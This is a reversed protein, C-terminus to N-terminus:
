KYYWVKVTRSMTNNFWIRLYVFKKRSPEDALVRFFSNTNAVSFSIEIQGNPTIVGKDINLLLMVNKEVSFVINHQSNNKIKLQQNPQVENPLDVMIHDKKASVFPLGKVRIRLFDRTEPMMKGEKELPFREDILLPIKAWSQGFTQGDLFQELFTRWVFLMGQDSGNNAEGLNVAAVFPDSTCLVSSFLELNIDEEVLQPFMGVKRKSDIPVNFDFYNKVELEDDTIYKDKNIDERWIARDLTKRITMSPDDEPSLKPGIPEYTTLAFVISSKKFAEEFNEKDLSMKPKRTSKEIGEQEFLTIIEFNSSYKNLIDGGMLSPDVRPFYWCCGYTWRYYALVPSAFVLSEVENPKKALAKFLLGKSSRSVSRKNDFDTFYYDTEIDSIKGTPLKDDIIVYAFDSGSDFNKVIDKIQEPSTKQSVVEIQIQFGECFMQKALMEKEAATYEEASIILATPLLNIDTDKNEANAKPLFLLVVILFILLKKFM